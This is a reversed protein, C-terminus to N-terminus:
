KHYEDYLKKQQQQQKVLKKRGSKSVEEGDVTKTPLGEEDWESYKKKMEETKFMELPDIKSKEMREAEKEAALRMQEQKKKIKKENMEKKEKQIKIMEEKEEKSLIKILSSQGESRDDIAIGLKIIEEDRIRDCEILLEKMEKININEISKSRIFDRFNSLVKIVPLIIEENNLEKNDANNEGNGRLDVETSEKWGLRDERISFGFIELIKSIYKCIDILLDIKYNNNNESIYSNCNNILELLNRIAIPTSLNDCLSKHVKEKSEEFLKFLKYDNIEYKKLIIEGNNLKEENDFNLARIKQYFKNITSEISKTENILSEKFDLPNNWQVLAFCLRLQKSSYKSLAEEITIFNKLSKSMKQGEIHLHGTHLFYNVWQKCDFYSESQAMENDHHPFALDIGGSHIDMNEGFFESAMVSCEIHWGPRGKGWPSEWFPEGIKSSKWLAFDSSNIKTNEINENNSLSGEGDKLLEMNGKSWPQNKAYQHNLSNDFKSSNFYVSGDKTVYAYGKDIIGEVFKIIEPIYESVRTIITPKLVNLNKMDLDFQREWYSSCKKFILPDNITSGFEKDLRPLVVDKISNIFEEFEIDGNNNFKNIALISLKVSKVYMPMKPKTLGIEKLNLTESWKIFDEFNLEFEPLNEKYYNIASEKCYKILNEDIKKDLKNVFENFLYEQRAKLIIKDDIDTVNQIFTVDYNFYDQLIRRNIDISVYNRAHGMHSSNYVTPGCSYWSIKGKENPIFETKSKTLSNYLKLIPYDEDEKTIPKYWKTDGNNNTCM